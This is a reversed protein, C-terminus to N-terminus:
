VIEDCKFLFNHYLEEGFKPGFLNYWILLGLSFLFSIMAREAEIDHIHSM